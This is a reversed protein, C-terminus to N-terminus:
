VDTHSIIEVYEALPITAKTREQITYFRRLTSINRVRVRTDQREGRRVGKSQRRQSSAAWVRTIRVYDDVNNRKGRRRERSLGEEDGGGGRSGGEDIGHRRDINRRDLVLGVQVACRVRERRQGKRDTGSM